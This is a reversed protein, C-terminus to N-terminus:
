ICAFLCYAYCDGAYKSDRYPIHGGGKGGNEVLRNIVTGLALLSKNIANAERLQSGTAGTKKSKESGAIVDHVDYTVESIHPYTGQAAFLESAM